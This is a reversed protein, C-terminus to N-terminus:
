AHFRPKGPQVLYGLVVTTVEDSLEDLDFSIDGHMAAHAVSEVLEVLIFIALELNKPRIESRRAEFHPRLRDAVHKQVASIRQLGGVRPIQEAFIKHLKPELNHAHMMARVLERAAVPLPADIIMAVTKDFVAIMAAIHRDVLAMVLAEKSPFYQYLSGISVGAAEAVRNTSTRDYGVSVLVRATATLIADVTAKARDQHPSKRPKTLTRIRV